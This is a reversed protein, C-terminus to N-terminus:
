GGGTEGAPVQVSLRPPRPVVGRAVEGAVQRLRPQDRTLPVVPLILSSVVPLVVAVEAAHVSRAPSPWPDERTLPLVPPLVSLIVSFSVWQLM